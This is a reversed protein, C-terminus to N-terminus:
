SHRRAAGPTWSGPDGFFMSNRHIEDVREFMERSSRYELPGGNERGLRETAAEGEAPSLEEVIQERPVSELLRYYHSAANEYERRNAAVVILGQRAVSSRPAVELLRLAYRQVRELDFVEMSLAVLNSLAEEARPDLTLLREYITEAEDFRRLLQLTVAKGFLAPRQAAESWCADFCALAEECQDLHLLCDGLAIRAADRHPDFALLRRLCGAAPEWRQMRVFCAALNQYAYLNDAEYALITSYTGIAEQLLGLELQLDGRLTFLDHSFEQAEALLSLAERPSGKAKLALAAQLRDSLAPAAAAGSRAPTM